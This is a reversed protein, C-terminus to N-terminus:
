ATACATGDLTFSTPPADSVHWTGLLGFTVSGGPAISADYPLNRATVTAGSQQVAANWASSVQQDGPYGFALTWGNIPASGTNAVSVQAVMGGPWERSTRYSVTCSAPAIPLDASLEAVPTGTTEFLSATVHLATATCGAFVLYTQSASATGHAAFQLPQRPLPDIAPCGAPIGTGAGTFRAVLMLSAQQPQDGCNQATVTVTASRGPVAQPPSFTVSTIQIGTTCAAPAAAAPGTTM